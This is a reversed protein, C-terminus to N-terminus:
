ITNNTILGIEYIKNIIELNEPNQLYISYYTNILNDWDQKIYQIDTKEFLIDVNNPNYYLLTDLINEADTINKNHMYYEYLIMGDDIIGPVDM